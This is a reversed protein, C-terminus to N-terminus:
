KIRVAPVGAYTADSDCDRIVVAGSGIVAGAGITRMADIPGQNIIAGSGIWAGNGIAVRGSINAGPAITVFDGIDCDHAITANQNIVAFDGLQVNVTVRAGAFVVTGRSAAISAMNASAISAAPHILAPFKANDPQRAAIARRVSPDGVGIAFCTNSLSGLDTELLVDWHGRYRAIEEENRAVM